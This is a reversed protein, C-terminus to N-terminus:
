RGRRELARIRRGLELMASLLVAEFPNLHGAYSSEAVHYRAHAMLDDFVEQEERRLARRYRALAGM